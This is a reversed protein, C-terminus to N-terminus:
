GGAIHPILCVTDNAKIVRDPLAVEHNVVLLLKRDDLDLEPFNVRLFRLVDKAATRKRIPMNISDVGAVARQAGYLEITVISKADM